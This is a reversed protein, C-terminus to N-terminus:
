FAVRSHFTQTYNEEGPLCKQILFTGMEYKKTADSYAEQESNHVGVVEKDKIVLVKGLYDKVLKEQNEIFFNFDEELTM